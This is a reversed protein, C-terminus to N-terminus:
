LFSVSIFSQTENWCAKHAGAASEGQYGTGIVGGLNSKMYQVDNLQVGDADGRIKPNLGDPEVKFSANNISYTKSERQPPM